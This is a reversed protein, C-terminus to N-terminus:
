DECDEIKISDIKEYDKRREESCKPCYKRFYRSNTNIEFEEKCDKCKITKTAM